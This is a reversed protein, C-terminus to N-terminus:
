VPAAQQTVTIIEDDAEAADDSVTITASRTEGTNELFTVRYPDTDGTGTAPETFWDVGDGTDNETSTWNMGEPVVDLILDHDGATSDHAATDPIAVIAPVPTANILMLCFFSHHIM